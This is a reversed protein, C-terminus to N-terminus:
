PIVISTGPFIRNGGDSNAYGYKKAAKELVEKNADYIQRWKIGSGYNQVALGWLTDGSKIVYQQKKEADKKSARSKKKAKGGGAASKKDKTTYIKLAEYHSFSISYEINGYGGSEKYEFSDITVDDNIGTDTILLKLPTGNRQWKELVKICKKPKKFERMFSQNRFASGFFTGSWSISGSRMGKPIKVDGVDIISFSHYNTQNKVKVEEPLAPFRFSSDKDKLERLYIDM